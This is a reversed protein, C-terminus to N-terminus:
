GKRRLFSELWPRSSGRQSRGGLYTVLSNVGGFSDRGQRQRPIDYIRGVLLEAHNAEAASRSSVSYGPLVPMPGARFRLMSSNRWALSPTEASRAAAMRTSSKRVCPLERAPSM